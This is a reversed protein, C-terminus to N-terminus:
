LKIPEEFYVEIEFERKASGAVPAPQKIVKTIAEDKFAPSKRLKDRFELIPQTDPVQDIYGVGALLLHTVGEVDSLGLSGTAVAEQPTISTLWMGPPLCAQIESMVKLWETRMENLELLSNLKALVQQYEGNARQLDENAADVTLLQPAVESIEHSCHAAQKTFYAGWVALAGAFAAGAILLIPQKAKFAKDALFKPPILNIEIPCSHPLRLALGVNAAILHAQSTIDEESISSAVMVNEFPNFYEVDIKLKNRFFTDTHPIISSGGTLLIKKPATGNQQSRYFNISRNIEAHMRTMSLRVSKSVKDAVESSPGEYAGGFAVFAHAKKLEEAEDFAMEFEKMVQQTIANGAVPISRSFFRGDEIFILDTSRAGIDIVLTCGETEGINYRVANFLAMPAVDVLEPELGCSQVCDTMDEVMVQKIAALMVDYETPDSGILQYDWVVENMPFPVNQKAEYLVMQELKDAAVPPLKVFRSFVAQGPVALYIPSPKFHNEAIMDRLTTVIYAPRDEESQMDIGLPATAVKMLEIGGGKLIEFEALKLSNAGIDLTLIRNVKGM